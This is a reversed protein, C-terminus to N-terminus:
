RGFERQLEVPIANNKQWKKATVYLSTGILAGVAIVCFVLFFRLWNM